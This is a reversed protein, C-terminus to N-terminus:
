CISRTRTDIVSPNINPSWNPPFLMGPHALPPTMKDFVLALHDRISQWQEASPPQENLEAFGQLWYAFQDATM